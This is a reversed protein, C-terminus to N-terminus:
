VIGARREVSMAHHVFKETRALVSVYGV